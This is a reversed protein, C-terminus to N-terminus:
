AVKRRDALVAVKSPEQRKAELYADIREAADGLDAENTINYREFTTRTKHGSIKMAVSEPVGARVMNRIGSRRLDHILLGNLGAATTATTWSRRCDVLAHGKNHFLLPCGLSRVALANEVVELLRGSLKILRAKGNKSHEARLRIARGPLDVDGWELTRAEGARWSTLYLFEVLGKLHEPLAELLRAFDAPDVFGQRANNLPLMEIAPPNPIQGAKHALSFMRRLMALEHNITGKAAGQALRDAKYAEIRTHTVQLARDNGFCKRLNAVSARLSKMSRRGNVTWNELLAKALEEFTIKAATPIYTGAETAM